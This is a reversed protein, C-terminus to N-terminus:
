YSIRVHFSKPTVAVSVPSETEGSGKSFFIVSIATSIIGGGILGAGVTLMTNSNEAANFADIYSDHLSAFDSTAATYADEADRADNLKGISDFILYAGSGIM